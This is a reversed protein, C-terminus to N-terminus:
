TRWAKALIRFVLGPTPSKQQREKPPIEHVPAIPTPIDEQPQTSNTTTYSLISPIPIPETLVPTDRGEDPLLIGSPRSVGTRVPTEHNDLVLSSQSSDTTGVSEPESLPKVAPIKVTEDESMLKRMLLAETMDDNIAARTEHEHVAQTDQAGENEHMSDLWNYAGELAHRCWETYNSHIVDLRECQELLQLTHDLWTDGRELMCDLLDVDDVGYSQLRTLTALAIPSPQTLQLLVQNDVLQQELSAIQEQLMAEQQELQWHQYSTYFTEVQQEDLQSFLSHLYERYLKPSTNSNDAVSM